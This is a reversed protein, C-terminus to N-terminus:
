VQVGVHTLKVFGAPVTVGISRWGLRPPMVEVSVSALRRTLGCPALQIATNLPLFNGCRLAVVPLRDM